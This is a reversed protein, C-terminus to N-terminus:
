FPLGLSSAPSPPSRAFFPCGRPCPPPRSPGPLGAAPPGTHVDPKWPKEVLASIAFDHLALAWLGATTSKCVNAVGPTHSWPLLLPRARGWLPWPQAGWLLFVRDQSPVQGNLQTAQCCGQGSALGM